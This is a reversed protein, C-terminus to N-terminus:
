EPPSDQPAPLASFRPFTVSVLYEAIDEVAWRVVGPGPRRVKLVGAKTLRDLTARSIPKEGGLAACAGKWDLLTPLKVPAEDNM